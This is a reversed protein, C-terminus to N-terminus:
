PINNSIVNPVNRQRLLANFGAVEKELLLKLHQQQTAAEEKLEDHVAAQQTTPQYDSSEVASALYGIKSILKPTFRVDDQGRGTARLQILNEEIDILKASLQDAATRIAAGSEDAGLASKLELLQGRLSEIQNVADVMTNMTGSLSTLLRTQIQIDGETGNSHPDKLVKLTQTYDKGAITLKVTYSGPPALLSVRREGPAPRWGQANLTVEPAYTPATRLRIQRTPEFRLDWWVRNLGPQSSAALSRVTRGSTDVIALRVPGQPAAK